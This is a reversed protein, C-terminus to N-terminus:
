VTRYWSRPRGRRDGGRLRLCAVGYAPARRPEKSRARAAACGANERKIQAAVLLDAGSGCCRACAVLMSRVAGLLARRSRHWMPSCTASRSMWTLPGSPQADAQTRAVTPARPANDGRRPGRATSLRASCLELGECQCGARPLACCHAGRLTLGPAPCGAHGALPAGPARTSPMTSSAREVAGLPGRPLPPRARTPHASRRAAGRGLGAGRRGHSAALKTRM